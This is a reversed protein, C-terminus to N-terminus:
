RDAEGDLLAFGATFGPGLASALVPGRRKQALVEKLVFLATPSSMNGYDRLVSRAAQMGGERLGFVAELAALVKAGGPHCATGVLDRRTMGHLALFRDLAPAYDRRVLAPIDRSFIVGLGDDEVRWGMVDLSDPWTYEGSARMRHGSDGPASTVLAAAAGDGFLATAVVNSKSNDSPRFTLACLEVVLLLVRRGPQSRAIEVARNLGLVGGCCGLGFVPLRLTDRPFDLREMLRADLSPTAIGTTSVTVLADVASADLRADSLCQRAAQELLDLAHTEYLRNRARWGIDSGYWALPMCSYRSGIGANEFVPLLRDLAAGREPFVRRARERVEAQDLKHPPLATSLASLRVPVTEAM